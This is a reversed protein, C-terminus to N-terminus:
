NAAAARQEAREREAIREQFRQVWSRAAEEIIRVYQAALAPLTVHLNLYVAVLFRDAAEDEAYAGLGYEALGARCQPWIRRALAIDALTQQELALATRLQPLTPQKTM